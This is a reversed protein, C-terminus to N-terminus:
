GCRRRTTAAGERRRPSQLDDPDADAGLVDVDASPTAADAVLGRSRVQAAAGRDPGDRDCEGRFRGSGLPLASRDHSLHRGAPLRHAADVSRGCSSRRGHAPICGEAKRHHGVHLDDDRRRRRRRRAGDGRHVGRRDAPRRGDHRRARRRRVGAPQRGEPDRQPDTRLARRVRRRRLRDDRRLPRRRLRGGRRLTPLQAPRRHLRDQALREDAGLHGDLEPRVVRDQRWARRRSRRPCPRTPEGSGRVRRLHLHACRGHRGGGDPRRHDRDQGTTSRGACHASGGHRM